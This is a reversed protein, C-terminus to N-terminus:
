GQRGSSTGKFKGEMMLAQSDIPPGDSSVKEYDGNPLLRWANQNDSLHTALILNLITKKLEPNLIPALVEIRRDLNRPM